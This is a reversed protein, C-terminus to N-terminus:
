PRVRHWKSDMWYTVNLQARQGPFSKSPYPGPSSRKFFILLPLTANRRSWPDRKALWIRMLRSVNVTWSVAGPRCCSENWNQVDVLDESVPSEVDYFVRIWQSVDVRNFDQCGVVYNPDINTFTFLDCLDDVITPHYLDSLTPLFGEMVWDEPVIVVQIDNPAVLSGNVWCPLTLSAEVLTFEASALDDAFPAAPFLWPLIQSPQTSNLVHSDWEASRLEAAHLMSCGHLWLLAAIINVAWSPEM